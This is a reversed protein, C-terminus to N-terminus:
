LKSAIFLYFINNYHTKETNNDVDASYCFVDAPGFVQSATCTSMVIYM